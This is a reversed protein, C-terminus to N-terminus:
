KRNEAKGEKESERKDGSSGETPRFEKQQSDPANIVAVREKGSEGKYMEGM